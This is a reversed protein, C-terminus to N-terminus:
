WIAGRSIDDDTAASKKGSGAVKPLSQSFIMTKQFQAKRLTRANQSITKSLQARTM